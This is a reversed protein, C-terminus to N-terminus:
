GCGCRRRTCGSSIVSGSSRARRRSRTGGPTWRWGPRASVCSAPTSGRHPWREDDEWTEIDGDFGTSSLTRTVNGRTDYDTATLHWADAGYAATNVTYGEPDTYQLDAYQWDGANLGTPSTSTLPHDPGFVAAAYTPAHRQNWTDVEATSLNPLGVSTAATGSVPAGYVVSVLTSMGGTTPPAPATTPDTCDTAPWPDTDAHPRTARAFRMESAPGAGSESAPAYHLTVPDQCATAVSEVRSTSGQYTYRTVVGTQEDRVTALRADSRYRYTVVPITAMAGAGNNAEPDWLVASLRKVQGAVDGLASATATTTTAYEVTLARCGPNLAGTAPCTVGPPVPALIRTVRGTGDRTYTTAGPAGAEIVSVPAFVVAGVGAAGPATTSEFVTVTGDEESLSVQARATASGATLVRLAVGASRTDDDAAVWVGPTFGAGVARRVGTTPTFVLPTADDALLALSGDVPTADYLEYGGVGTDPGDFNATWGPGFVGIVPGATAGGATFTSHTRSVSLSGTYGPVSADTVTTTFEGTWLAVQGPGAEAVPFGNGFAHPVRRVVGPGTASSCNTVSGYVLCLRVELRVPARAPLDVGAATDQSLAGTALRGSVTWGASGNAAVSLTAATGADNWGATSGGVRWQVKATPTGGGSGAPPGSGTVTVVDTTTVGAAAPSTLGAESGWGVQFTSTGSVVNSRSRARATITHLGATTPLTVTSSASSGVGPPSVKVATETGGAVKILLWGPTALATASSVPGPATVTCVVGASPSTTVWSGNGQYPSPCTVTPAGPATSTVNIGWWGSWGSVAGLEDVARARLFYKVNDTLNSAVTCSAQSGSAVLGSTCSQVLSAATGATSSHVQFEVRVRNADPDSGTATLTPTRDVTFNDAATSGPPAYTITPTVVPGVSMGPSRNYTYTIRPPSATERSAFKKWGYSDAENQARVVLALTSTPGYESWRRVMSTADINVWGDACASSYGTTQSSVTVYTGNMTPQNSWNTTSESALGAASSTWNRASCSYSHTAWLTLTASQISKGSVGSNPFSLFSRAVTSGGDFTGIKLETSSGQPTSIGSQVFTDSSPGVSGSAYSPDVTIPFVAEAVWGPDPVVRVGPSGDDRTVVDLDVPGINVPEDVEEARQADWAFAAPLSSVVEGESGPSTSVFSVSGDAEERASVGELDVPLTWALEEGAGPAQEVVFFSEWGTSLAEMVLDVGPTVEAYTARSGEVVPEPLPGPWVVEVGHGSPEEVPALPTAEAAAETADGGVEVSVDAPDPVGSEGGPFGVELPHAAPVLGGDASEVLDLDVDVWADQAADFYRVPAAAEETTWSGEPNVWTRSTPSRLSVVEVREGSARARVVASVEDPAVLGDDGSEGRTTEAEGEVAGEGPSEGPATTSAAGDPATTVVLVLAVAFGVAVSVRRLVPM